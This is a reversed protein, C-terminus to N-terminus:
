PYDRISARRNKELLLHVEKWINCLFSTLRIIVIASARDNIILKAINMM